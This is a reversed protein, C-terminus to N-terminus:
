KRLTVYCILTVFESCELFHFFILLNLNYLDHKYLIYKLHLKPYLKCRTNLCDLCLV